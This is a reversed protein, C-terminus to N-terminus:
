VDFFFFDSLNRDADKGVTERKRGGEEKLTIDEGEIVVRSGEAEDDDVERVKDDDVEGGGVNDDVKGKGVEDDDDDDVEGGVDEKCVVTLEISIAASCKAM